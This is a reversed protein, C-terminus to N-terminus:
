GRRGQAHAFNSQFDTFYDGAILGCPDNPHVQYTQELTFGLTGDVGLKNQLDTIVPELRGACSEIGTYYDIPSARNPVSNSSWDVYAMADKESRDAKAYKPRALPTGSPDKTVIRYYYTPVIMLTERDTTNTASTPVLADARRVVLGQKEFNFKVIELGGASGPFMESFANASDQMTRRMMFEKGDFDAVKVSSDSTPLFDENSLFISALETGQSIQMLGSTGKIVEIKIESQAIGNIETRRIKVPKGELNYRLVFACDEQPIGATATASVV